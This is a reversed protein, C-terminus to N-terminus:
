RVYEIQIEYNGQEYATQFVYDGIQREGEAVPYFRKDVADYIVAEGRLQKWSKRSVLIM